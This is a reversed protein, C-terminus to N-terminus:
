RQCPDIDDCSVVDAKCELDWEFVGSDMVNECVEVCSAGDPTGNAEQCGLEAWHQCVGACTPQHGSDSTPVPPPVPAPGPPQTCHAGVSLGAFILCGLITFRDM